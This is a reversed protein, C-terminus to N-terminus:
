ANAEHRAKVEKIVGSAKLNLMARCIMMDARWWDPQDGYGGACYMVGHEDWQKFM